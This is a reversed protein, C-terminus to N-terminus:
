KQSASIVKKLRDQQAPTMENKRKETINLFCEADVSQLIPRMSELHTPIDRPLCTQLEESLVPYVSKKCEPNSAAVHSLARIGWVKTIVTGRITSEIVLDLQEVIPGPQLDAVCALAIMGGWVMRNEKSKLLNLFEIVYPAILDPRLYGIEYIVKICDSRINPNQNNLNEAIERIGEQDENKVLLRALEQNPVENRRNQFFAIQDLASM